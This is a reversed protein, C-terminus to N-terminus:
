AGESPRQPVPTYDPARSGPVARTVDPPPGHRLRSSDEPDRPLLVLAHAEAEEILERAGGSVGLALPVLVDHGLDLQAIGEAEVGGPEALQVEAPREGGEGVREHDQGGGSLARAADAQAGRHRQERQVVRHLGGLLGGGGVQEAVPAQLEPDPAAGRRNV